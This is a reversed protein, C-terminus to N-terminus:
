RIDRARERETTWKNKIENWGKSIRWWLISFSVLFFCSHFALPSILERTAIPQGQLPLLCANRHLLHKAAEVPRLKQGAQLSKSAIRKIWVSFLAIAVLASARIGFFFSEILLLLSQILYQLSQHKIESIRVWLRLHVILISTLQTRKRFHWWTRRM